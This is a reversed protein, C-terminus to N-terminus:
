DENATFYTQDIDTVTFGNDLRVTLLRKIPGAARSEEVTGPTGETIWLRPQGREGQAILISQAAKVRTGENLSEMTYARRSALVKGVRTSGAM